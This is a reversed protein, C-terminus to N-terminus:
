FKEVAGEAGIYVLKSPPARAVKEDFNELFHRFVGKKAQKEFIKGAPCFNQGFCTRKLAEPSSLFDIQDGLFFDVFNKFNKQLDGGGRSFGLDAGAQECNKRESLILGFIFTQFPNKRSM